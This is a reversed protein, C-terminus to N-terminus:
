RPPPTRSPDLSVSRRLQYPAAYGPHQQQVAPRQLAHGTMVRRAAQPGTARPTRPCKSRHPEFSGSPRAMQAQTMTANRTISRLGVVAAAPRALLGARVDSPASWAASAASSLPPPTRFPPGGSSASSDSAHMRNPRRGPETRDMAEVLLAAPDIGPAASDM